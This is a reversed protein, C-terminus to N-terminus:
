VAREPFFARFQQRLVEDVEDMSARVGLAHLSTVGFNNIGCPVIGAYHSLDPHVNLAIGHYTVWKRIRIGLAAIKAESGKGDDVWVGIRGERVHGTLGFQALTAILWAELTQVYLRLDPASPRAREKLDLMIYAVRQGPGHYTFEGGRGAAYVPFRKNDLLDVPKASTGSTYLPPHQLLWAMEPKERAIVQDVREEMLALATDYDILEQSLKWELAPLPTKM